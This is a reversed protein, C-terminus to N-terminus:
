QKLSFEQSSPILYRNQLSIWKTTAVSINRATTPIVTTIFMKQDLLHVPVATAYTWFSHPPCHISRAGHVASGVQDYEEYYLAGHSEERRWAPCAVCDYLEPVSAPM